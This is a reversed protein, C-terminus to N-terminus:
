CRPPAFGGHDVALCAPNQHMEFAKGYASERRSHRRGLADLDLHRGVLADLLEGVGLSIVDRGHVSHAVFEASPPERHHLRSHVLLLTCFVRDLHHLVVREAVLLVELRELGLNRDQSPQIVRVDHLQLLHDSRCDVRVDHHFQARAGGNLKPPAGRRAPM